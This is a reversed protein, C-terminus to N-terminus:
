GDKYLVMSSEAALPAERRSQSAAYRFSMHWHLGHRGYLVVGLRLTQFMECVDRLGIEVPRVSIANM